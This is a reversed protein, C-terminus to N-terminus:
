NWPAAPIKPSVKKGELKASFWQDFPIIEYTLPEWRLSADPFGLRPFSDKVLAATREFDYQSAQLRRALRIILRDRKRLTLDEYAVNLKEMALNLAEQAVEPEKELLEVASIFLFVSQGMRIDLGSQDHAEMEAKLGDVAKRYEGRLYDYVALFLNYQAIAYPLQRTYKSKIIKPLKSGLAKLDNKYFDISILAKNVLYIEQSNKKLLQQASEFANIAEDPKRLQLLILGLDYYSHNERQFSQIAPESKILDILNECAKKAKPYDDTRTLLLVTLLGHIYRAYKIDHKRIIKQIGEISLKLLKLPDEKQNRAENLQFKLYWDQTEEFASRLERAEEVYEGLRRFTRLGKDVSYNFQLQRQAEVAQDYLEYKMSRSIIDELIKEAQDDMGRSILIHSQSLKKANMVQTRFRNNYGGPRDINIELILNELIIGKLNLLFASKEVSSLEKMELKQMLEARSLAGDTLIHRVAELSKDSVKGSTQSYVELQGLLVEREARNFKKLLSKIEAFRDTRKM